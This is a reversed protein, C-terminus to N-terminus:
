WGDDYVQYYNDIERVEYWEDSKDMSKEVDIM